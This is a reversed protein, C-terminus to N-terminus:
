GDTALLLLFTLLINHFAGMQHRVICAVFRQSDDIVLAEREKKNLDNKTTQTDISGPWHFLYLIHEM